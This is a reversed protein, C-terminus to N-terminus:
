FDMLSSSIAEYITEYQSLSLEELRDWKATSLILCRQEDISSIDVYDLM